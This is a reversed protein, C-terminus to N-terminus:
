EETEMTIRAGNGDTLVMLERDPLGISAPTAAPDYALTEPTLESTWGCLPATVSACAPCEARLMTLRERRRCACWVGVGVPRLLELCLGSWALGHASAVDMMMDALVIDRAVSESVDPWPEVSDCRLPCEPDKDIRSVLVVPPFSLALTIDTGPEADSPSLALASAALGEETGFPVTFRDGEEGPDVECSMSLDAHSAAYYSDGTGCFPCPGGATPFVYTRVQAAQGGTNVTILNIPRTPTAVRLLVETARRVASPRDVALYVRTAANRLVVGGVVEEARGAHVVLADGGPLRRMARQAASAKTQQVDNLGYARELTRETVSKPDCALVPMGRRLLTDLITLGPHGLGIVVALENHLENSM